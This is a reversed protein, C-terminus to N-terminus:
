KSQSILQNRIRSKLQKIDRDINGKPIQFNVVAAKDNGATDVLYIQRIEGQPLSLVLKVEFRWDQLNLEQLVEETAREIEHLRKMYSLDQIYRKM